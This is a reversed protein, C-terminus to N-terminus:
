RNVFSQSGVSTATPQIDPEFRPTLESVQTQSAVANTPARTLQTDSAGGHLEAMGSRLRRYVQSPHEGLLRLHEDASHPVAGAAPVDAEEM